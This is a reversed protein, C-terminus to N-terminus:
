VKIVAASEMSERKGFGRGPTNEVVYGNATLDLRCIKNAARGGRGRREARCYFSTQEDGKEM